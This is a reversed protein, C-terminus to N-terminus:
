AARADRVARCVFAPLRFSAVVFNVGFLWLWMAFPAGLRFLLPKTQPILIVAVSVMISAAVLMQVCSFRYRVIGPSGAHVEIVGSGIPALVNWNSVLRLMGARFAVTNGACTVDTARARQLASKLAAILVPVQDASINASEIRGAITLPFM